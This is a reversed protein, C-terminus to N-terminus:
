IRLKVTVRAHGHDIGCIQILIRSFKLNQSNKLYRALIATQGTRDLQSPGKSFQLWYVLWVSADTNNKKINAFGYFKNHSIHRLM